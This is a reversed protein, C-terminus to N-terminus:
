PHLRFGRGLDYNESLFTMGFHEAEDALSVGVGDDDLTEVLHLFEVERVVDVEVALGRLREVLEVADDVVDLGVDGRLGGELTEVGDATGDGVAHRVDRLEGGAM